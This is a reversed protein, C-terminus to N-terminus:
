IKHSHAEDVAYRLREYSVDAPVTCDAGLMFGGMGTHSIVKRVEARIAAEDGDVLVGRNHLGGLVPRRFVARGGQLELNNRHVAWNFLDGPYDAYREPTTRFEYEPEGCIHIIARKGAKKAANIVRLDYPKILREWQEDTFRGPESFQASFYIGDGGSNIYGGVFDELVTTIAEVGNIVSDPDAVCDKMFDADSLGNSAYTFSAIKFPSWVTPFLMAEGSVANALRKIIESMRRYHACNVGPLSIKNWDAAGAIKVGDTLYSGSSDDMVKIIDMGTARYLGLHAEATAKADWEAPYHLWFGAPVCDPAGGEFVANLREIRNM